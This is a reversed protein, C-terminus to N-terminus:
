LPSLVFGANNVPNWVGLGGFCSPLAFLQREAASVEVGFLAPLFCSFFCYELEALLLGCKPTVRM